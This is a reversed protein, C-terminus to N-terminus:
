LDAGLFDRYWSITRQLGEQLTFLPRWGLVQRAKAASLHQHLIENASQNLIQPQLESGMLTIIQQVIELVSM